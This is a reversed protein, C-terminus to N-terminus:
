PLQQLPSKDFFSNLPHHDRKVGEGKPSYGYLQSVWMQFSIARPARTLMFGWSYHRIIPSDGAERALHSSGSMDQPETGM